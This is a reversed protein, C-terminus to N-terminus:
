SCYYSSMVSFLVHLLIYCTNFKSHFSHDSNNQNALLCQYNGKVWGHGFRGVSRFIDAKAISNVQQVQPFGGPAHSKRQEWQSFLFVAAVIQEFPTYLGIWYPCGLTRIHSKWQACNEQTPMSVFRCLLGHVVAHNPMFIDRAPNYNTQKMPPPLMYVYVWVNLAFINQQIPVFGWCSAIISPCLLFKSGEKKLAM